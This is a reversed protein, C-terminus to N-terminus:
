KQPTPLNKLYHLEKSFPLGDTTLGIVHIISSGLDDSEYFTFTAKGEETKQSSVYYSCAKFFPMSENKVQQQTLNEFPSVFTLGSIIKNSDITPRQKGFRTKVIVIGNKGLLGFRVLKRYNSVVSLEEIDDQNLSLFYDTDLTVVGDIVYLPSSTATYPKLYSVRVIPEKDKPQGYYIPSVMTKLFEGFTKFIVYDRPQIRYDPAIADLREGTSTETNLSDKSAYFEYSSQILKRKESFALYDNTSEELIVKEAIEPNNTVWKVELDSIIDGDPTEAILFLEEQGYYDLIEAKFYGGPDTTALYRMRSHQLYLMLSSNSSIPQATNRNVLYGELTLRPSLNSHTTRETASLPNGKLVEQNWVLVSLQGDLPNGTLNDSLDVELTTLKRPYHTESSRLTVNVSSNMISQIEAMKGGVPLQISLLEEGNQTTLVVPYGGITLNEPIALGNRGVGDIIRFTSLGKVEENDLLYAKLIGNVDTSQDSAVIRVNFYATYGAAYYPQHFTMQVTAEQGQASYLLYCSCWVLWIVKKVIGM